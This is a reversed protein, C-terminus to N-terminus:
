DSALADHPHVIAEASPDIVEASCEGIRISEGAPVGLYLALKRCAALETDPDGERSFARPPHFRTLGRRAQQQRHAIGIRLGAPRLLSHDVGLQNGLASLGPQDPFLPAHAEVQEWGVARADVDLM